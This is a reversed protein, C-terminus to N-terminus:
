IAEEVCEYLAIMNQSAVAGFIKLINGPMLVVPEEFKVVDIQNASLNGTAISARINAAQAGTIHEFVRAVFTGSGLNSKSVINNATNENGTVSAVWAMGWSCAGTFSTRVSKVIINKGSTSPNQLYCAPGTTADSTIYISAMFARGAISISKGGDMVSVEGTIRQDVFDSAAVLIVGKNASGSKDNITLRKFPANAQGQGAAIPGIRYSDTVLELTGTSSMIRVYEGEVNLQFSGNAPITFDYMRASKM